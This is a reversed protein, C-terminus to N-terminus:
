NAKNHAKPTFCLVIDPDFRTLTNDVKRFRIRTKVAFSDPNQAKVAASYPAVTKDIKQRVLKNRIAVALRNLWPAVRAPAISLRRPFRSSFAHCHQDEVIALAECHPYDRRLRATLDLAVTYYLGKSYLIVITKKDTNM